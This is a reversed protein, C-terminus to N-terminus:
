IYVTFGEVYRPKPNSTNDNLGRFARLSEAETVYIYVISYTCLDEYGSGKQHGLPVEVTSM